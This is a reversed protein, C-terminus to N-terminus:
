TTSAEQQRRFWLGSILQEHLPSTKCVLFGRACDEAFLLKTTMRIRNLSLLMIILPNQACANVGKSKDGSLSQGNSLSVAWPSRNMRKLIEEQREHHTTLRDFSRVM